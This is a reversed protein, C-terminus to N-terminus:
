YCLKSISIIRSHTSNFENYCIGQALKSLNKQMQSSLFFPFFPSYPTPEQSSHFCPLLRPSCRLTMGTKKGSFDMSHLFCWRVRISSIKTNKLQTRKTATQIQYLNLSTCGILFLFFTHSQSYFNFLEPSLLCLLFFTTQIVTKKWLIITSTCFM